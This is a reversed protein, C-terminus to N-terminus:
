IHILSLDNFGNPSGGPWSNYGPDADTLPNFTAALGTPWEDATHVYPAPHGTVTLTNGSLSIPSDGDLTGTSTYWYANAATYTGSAPLTATIVVTSDATVVPDDTYGGVFKQAFAAHDLFWSGVGAVSGWQGASPGATDYNRRLTVDWKFLCDSGNAQGTGGNDDISYYLTGSGGKASDAPVAQGDVTVSTVTPLAGSASGCSGQRPQPSVRAGAAPVLALAAVLVAAIALHRRM